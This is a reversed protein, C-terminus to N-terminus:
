KTASKQSRMGRTNSASNVIFSAGVGILLASGWFLVSVLLNEYHTLYVIRGHQNFAFILGLETEPKIPRHGMFYVSLLLRGIFGAVGAGLLGRGVVTSIVM